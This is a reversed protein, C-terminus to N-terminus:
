KGRPRRALLRWGDGGIKLLSVIVVIFELRGLFMAITESWLAADPMRHSTVGVSLGVTGIASAFEFLSDVLDFGCACLIMVGLIYTTLYLFIFVMVQRIRADDVFVRRNGEWVPRELVATRPILYRKIEWRLMKLLLYVRFQKIGGATSCTGGGILMLVILLLVGFANLDGYNVTSFGTTTVATLTGFVAVRVAKGLQPYLARSTLLFFAAVAAPILVVLLRVEGNRAVMRLKGRWMLWATVYSLSGLLMLPLTVAEVAVSNWYGISETRTSFGGTSVAAFSHNVADFFSMGALRYAITGALAYCVYIILVLRASQRVHPVLQDGRGEASSIGVGVPSVIASMMIIALGAGGAWQIISRWLLIMKGASTVDVVSLGTTTWGSVSEFVARSYSLGLTAYFPWASFLIVTIWSLLVIIGGEQITLTITHRSRLTRWLVMGLFFLCAAPLGFAWARDAEEPNFLLVLLPLIMVVSSLLLIFGVSSIIAAYRHKLYDIERM